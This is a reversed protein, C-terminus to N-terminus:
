LANAHATAVRKVYGWELVNGACPGAVIKMYERGFVKRALCSYVIHDSKLRHLDSFGCILYGIALIHQRGGEASRHLRDMRRCEMGLLITREAMERLFFVLMYKRQITIIGTYDLADNLPQVLRNLSSRFGDDGM